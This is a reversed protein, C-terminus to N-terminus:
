EDGLLGERETEERWFDRDAQSLGGIAEAFSQRPASERLKPASKAKYQAGASLRPPQNLYAAVEDATRGIAEAVRRVLAKPVTGTELLCQTLRGLTATDLHLARAFATPALGRAGAEAVLSVIAPAAFHSDLFARGFAVTEADAPGDELPDSLSVGAAFGAYSVAILADAHDPFREAWARLLTRDDPAAWRAREFAELVDDEDQRGADYTIMKETM